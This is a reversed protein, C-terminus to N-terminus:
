VGYVKIEICVKIKDKALKLAERLTPIKENEYTNGIKQSFGVRVRSLDTYNMKSIEGKKGNSSTKDLTSNHIVVISDNKTKHVDL